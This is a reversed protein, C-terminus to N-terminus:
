KTVSFDYPIELKKKDVLIVTLPLDLPICGRPWFKTMCNTAFSNGFLLNAWGKQPQREFIQFGPDAVSKHIGHWNQMAWLLPSDLTDKSAGVSGNKQQNRTKKHYIRLIFIPSVWVPLGLDLGPQQLLKRHIDRTGKILDFDLQPLKALLVLKFSM